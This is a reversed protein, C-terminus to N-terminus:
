KRDKGRRSPKRSQFLKTIEVQDVKELAFTDATREVALEELMQPLSYRVEAIMRVPPPRKTDDTM